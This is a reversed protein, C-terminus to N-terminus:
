GCVERRCWTSATLSAVDPVETVGQIYDQLVETGFQIFMVAIDISTEHVDVVHAPHVVGNRDLTLVIDGQIPKSM